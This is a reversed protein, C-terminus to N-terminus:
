RLRDGSAVLSNVRGGVRLFYGELLLIDNRPQRVSPLQEQRELASGRQGRFCGQLGRRM